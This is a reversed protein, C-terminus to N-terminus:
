APTPCSSRWPRSSKIIAKLILLLKRMVAVLAVKGPKGKTRCINSTIVSCQTPASLASHAWISSADCIPAVATRWPSVMRVFLRRVKFQDLVKVIMEIQIGPTDPVRGTM